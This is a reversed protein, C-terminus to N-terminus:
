SVETADNNKHDEVTLNIVLKPHASFGGLFSFTPDHKDMTSLNFWATFGLPQADSSAPTKSPQIGLEFTSGYPYYDAIPQCCISAMSMLDSDIPPSYTSQSLSASRSVFLQIFPFLHELSPPSGPVKYRV